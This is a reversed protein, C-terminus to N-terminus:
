TRSRTTKPKSSRRRPAPKVPMGAASRAEAIADGLALWEDRGLASKLEPFIEGEEKEREPGEESEARATLLRKAERHDVKLIAVPDNM